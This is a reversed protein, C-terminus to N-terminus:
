ENQKKTLSPSPSPVECSVPQGHSVSAPCPVTHYIRSHVFGLTPKLTLWVVQESLRSFICLRLEVGTKHDAPFIIGAQPINVGECSRGLASVHSLRMWVEYHCSQDKPTLELEQRNIEFAEHKRIPWESRSRPPKVFGCVDSWEGPVGCRHPAPHCQSSPTRSRRLRVTSSVQTAM